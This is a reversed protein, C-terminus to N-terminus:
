FDSLRRIVTVFFATSWGLLVVGNIGEIAAVLRWEPALADYSFGIAAYTQTSFFVADRLNQVADLQLYLIAYLWIELGHLLLLGLVISMTLFIGAVSYPQIHLSREEFSEYRVLRRLLLLGVTHVFVTLMVMLTAVLLETLL